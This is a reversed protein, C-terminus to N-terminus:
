GQERLRRYEQCQPCNPADLDHGGAELEKMRIHANIGEQRAEAIIVRLIQLGNKQTAEYDDQNEYTCLETIAALAQKIREETM